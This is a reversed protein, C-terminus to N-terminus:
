YPASMYGLIKKWILQFTQFKQQLYDWDLHKM